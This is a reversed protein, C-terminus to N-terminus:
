GALVPPTSLAAKLALLRERRSVAIRACADIIAGLMTSPLAALFEQASLAGAVMRQVEALTAASGEAGLCRYMYATLPSITLDNKSDEPRGEELLHLLLPDLGPTNPGKPLYDEVREPRGHSSRIDGLFMSVPCNGGTELALAEIISISSIKLQLFALAFAINAGAATTLRRHVEATPVDGFHHFVREAQLSSLFGLMRMLAERYDRLTYVGVSALPANSEEILLWTASVFRAPSPEAFGGVDRNAIGVADQMVGAVYTARASQESLGLRTQAAQQVREALVMSCDRGDAELPRFAITAEICALVAILDPLQVFPQLLRVAVAASLFENMGRFLPLAQGPAFGFLAYCLQMASDDEGLPQLVLDDGQKRVLPTLLHALRPPFGNDLQYYVVDHWIAALVQRPNMGECMHLAHDSSHYHRRPSEMASHVLVAMHEIQPMSIPAKLAGFASDLLQIFRNINATTM